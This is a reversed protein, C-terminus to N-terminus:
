LTAAARRRRLAAGALGFGSILVAWTSPEPVAMPPINGEFQPISLLTANDGQAIFYGGVYTRTPINSFGVQTGVYRLGSFTMTPLDFGRFFQGVHICCNTDALNTQFAISGDAAFLTIAGNFAVNNPVHINEAMVFTDLGFVNSLQVAQDGLFDINWVLEDGNGFSFTPFSFDEPTAAVGTGTLGGTLNGTLDLTSNIVVQAGQASGAAFLLIASLAAGITRLM